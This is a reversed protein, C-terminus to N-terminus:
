WFFDLITSGNESKKREAYGYQAKVTELWSQIQKVPFTKRQLYSIRFYREFSPGLKHASEYWHAMEEQMTIRLKQEERKERERHLYDNRIQWANLSFYVLQQIIGITWWEATKYPKTNEEDVTKRLYDHQIGYWRVSLRGKFIEM